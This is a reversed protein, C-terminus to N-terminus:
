YRDKYKEKATKTFESVFIEKAETYGDRNNRFKDWRGLKLNEYDKAVKPNDNLYDRFYLEDNDGRIHVHIHFVRDAYGNETYGKNLSLRTKSKSM